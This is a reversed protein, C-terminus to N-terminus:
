DQKKDRWKKSGSGGSRGQKNRESPAFAGAPSPAKGARKASPRPTTEEGRGEKVAAPPPTEDAAAGAMAAAEAAEARRGLSLTRTSPSSAEAAERRELAAGKLSKKASEQASRARLVALHMAGNWCLHVQPFLRSAGRFGPVTLWLVLLLELHRWLPVWALALNVFPLVVWYRMWADGSPFDGSSIAHLTQRAPLVYKALIVGFHCMFGPTFLFPLLLLQVGMSFFARVALTAWSPILRVQEVTAIWSQAHSSAQELRERGFSLSGLGLCQALLPACFSAGSFSPLLVWVLLGIQLSGSLAPGLAKQTLFGILPLERLAVWVGVVAWVQLWSAVPAFDRRRALALEDLEAGPNTGPAGAGRIPRLRHRLWSVPSALSPSDLAAAAAGGRPAPSKRAAELVRERRREREIWPTMCHMSGALPVVVALLHWLAPGRVVAALPSESVLSLHAALLGAAYLVHPLAAAGLTSTRRVRERLAQWQIELSRQGARARLRQRQVWPSRALFRELVLLATLVTAALVVLGQHEADLSAWLATARRGARFGALVAVRAARRAVPRAVHGWLRAAKVSARWAAQVEPLSPFPMREPAEAWAELGAGARGGLVGLKRGVEGGLRGLREGAAAGLGGLGGFGGGGGGGVGGLGGLGGGGGWAPAGAAGGGALAALLLLAGAPGRRGGGRGGGGCGGGRWAAM